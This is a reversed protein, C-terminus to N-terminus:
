TGCLSTVSKEWNESVVYDCVASGLVHRRIGEEEKIVHSLLSAIQKNFSATKYYRLNM